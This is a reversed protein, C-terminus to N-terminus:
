THRFTNEANRVNKNNRSREARDCFVCNIRIYGKERKLQATIDAPVDVAWNIGIKYIKAEFYHKM